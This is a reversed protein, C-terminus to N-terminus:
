MGQDAALAARLAEAAEAFTMAAVGTTVVLLVAMILKFPRM